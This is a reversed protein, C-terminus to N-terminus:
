QLRFISLQNIHTEFRKEEASFYEQDIEFGIFDLGAEYAAIRSSGSGLHTDM